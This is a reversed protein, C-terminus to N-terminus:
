EGAKGFEVNSGGNQIFNPFIYVSSMPKVRQGFGTSLPVHRLINQHVKRKMSM